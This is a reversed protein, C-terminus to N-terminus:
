PVGLNETRYANEPPPPLASPLRSSIIRITCGTSCNRWVKVTRLNYYAVCRIGCVFYSINKRNRQKVPSTKVLRDPRRKACEAHKRSIRKTSGTRRTPSTNSQTRHQVNPSCFCFILSFIFQRGLNELCQKAPTRYRSYIDIFGNFILIKLTLFRHGFEFGYHVFM